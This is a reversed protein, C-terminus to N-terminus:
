LFQHTLIATAAIAATETRLINRGLTVPVFGNRKFIDVESPDFGGEPGIAVMISDPTPTSSLLNKLKLMTEEEWLLIRLTEATKGTVEAASACWSVDPVFKRSSQRAAETAIRSWRALKTERNKDSVRAVSRMGGFIVFSDAGLETCKQLVLDIKDGKPMAQAITIRPTAAPADPIDNTGTIRILIWDRDIQDIIGEQERGSDDVLTLPEGTGLRLVRVIHNFLDGDLTAFGNRVSGSNIM